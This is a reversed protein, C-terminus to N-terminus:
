QGFRRAGDNAFGHAHPYAMGMGSGGGDSKARDSPTAIGDLPRVIAGRERGVQTVQQDKRRKTAADVRNGGGASAVYGQLGAVEV